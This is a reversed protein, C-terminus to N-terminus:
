SLSMNGFVDIVKGLAPKCFRGSRRLAARTPPHDNKNKAQEDADSSSSSEEQLPFAYTM